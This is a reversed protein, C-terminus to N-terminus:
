KMIQRKKKKIVSAPIRETFQSLRGNFNIAFISIHKQNSLWQIIKEFIEETLIKVKCKLQCFSKPFSLIIKVLIQKKQALINRSYWWRYLEKIIKLLTRFVVIQLVSNETCKKKMSSCANWKQNCRYWRLEGLSCGILLRTRQTPKLTRILLSLFKAKLYIHFGM